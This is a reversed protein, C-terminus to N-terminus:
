HEMGSDCREIFIMCKAGSKEPENYLPIHHIYVNFSSQCYKKYEMTDLLFHHWAEDIVTHPSEADGKAAAELFVELQDFLAKSQEIDIQQKLAFSSVINSPIM